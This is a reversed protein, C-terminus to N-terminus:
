LEKELPGIKAGPGARRGGGRPSGDARQDRTRTTTSRPPTGASESAAMSRAGQRRVSAGEPVPDRRLEGRERASLQRLPAARAKPEEDVAYPRPTLLAPAAVAAAGHAAAGAEAGDDLSAAGSAGGGGTLALAGLLGFLTVAVAAAAAYPARRRPRATVIIAPGTIGTTTPVFTLEGSGATRVDPKDVRRSARVCRQIREGRAQISGGVRESLVQAVHQETLLPGSQMLWEQLRCRMEDATAFREAPNASMARLVIAELEPPYGPVIASPPTFAGVILRM